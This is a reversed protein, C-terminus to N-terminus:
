VEDAMYDGDKLLKEFKAMKVPDLGNDEGRNFELSTFMDFNLTSYIGNKDCNRLEEITNIMPYTSTVKKSKKMTNPTQNIFQTESIIIIRYNYYFTVSNKILFV